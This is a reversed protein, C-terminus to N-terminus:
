LNKDEYTIYFDQVPSPMNGDLLDQCMDALPSTITSADKDTKKIFYNAKGMGRYGNEMAKRVYNETAQLVIDWTYDPYKNFFWTFRPTLDEVSSRFTYGLTPHQGTPFIERYAKVKEQYGEGLAESTVKVKTKKFYAECDTIISEAKYTLKNDASILQRQKCIFM